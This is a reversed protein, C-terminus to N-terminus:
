ASRRRRVALGVGLLVLAGSLPLLSTAGTAPLQGGAQPTSGPQVAGAPRGTTATPTRGPAARPALMSPGGSQRVFGPLSM